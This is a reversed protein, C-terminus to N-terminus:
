TDSRQPYTVFFLFLNTPAPLQYLHNTQFISFKLNSDGSFILFTSAWPAMPICMYLQASLYPSKKPALLVQNICSAMLLFDIFDILHSIVNKFIQEWFFLDMFMCNLLSIVGPLEHLIFIHLGRCNPVCVCVCVHILDALLCSHTTPMKRMRYYGAIHQLLM